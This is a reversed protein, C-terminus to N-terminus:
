DTREAAYLRLLEHFAFRGPAVESLLHADALHELLRTAEDTTIGAVAAAAAVGVDREPRVGLLGFLRRADSALRQYSLDFAARVTLEADGDVALGTLADGRRLEAVHEAIPQDPRVMLNAAAIRLALPLHGCVAALEAAADPDAAIRAGGLTRRLLEIAEGPTLVDLTLRRAGHSAVLGTLRDRSTILTLCTSSGPLLPRVHEAHAADDLVVLASRRDLLSRYLPAAVELEAPVTDPEVGLSHLLQALAQLPSLAPGSEHGRLHVYLQGDPFRSAVRHAWHIALATKGVGATGVVAAVAVSSRPAGGDALLGDLQTLEGARGTFTTLDPPLEAPVPVADAGSPQRDTVLLPRAADEPAAGVPGEPGDQRLLAEYAGVLAQGANVGLEAALRRRAQDYFVFADARRGLAGYARLLCVQIQEDLPRRRAQEELLPLVEDARGLAVSAEAYWTVLLRWEAHLAVVRPHRALVPVDPLPTRWVAM